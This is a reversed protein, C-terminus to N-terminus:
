PYPLKEIADLDTAFRDVDSEKVPLSKLVPFKEQKRQAFKLFRRLGTVVDHTKSAIQTM